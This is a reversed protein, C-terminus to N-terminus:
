EFICFLCGYYLSLLKRLIVLGQSVLTVLHHPVFSSAERQIYLNLRTMIRNTGFYQPQVFIQLKCTQQTPPSAYYNPQQQSFKQWKLSQPQKATSWISISAFWTPAMRYNPLSPTNSSKNAPVGNHNRMYSFHEEQIVLSM